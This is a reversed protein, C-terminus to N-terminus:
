PVKIFLVLISACTVVEGGDDHSLVLQLFLFARNVVDKAM